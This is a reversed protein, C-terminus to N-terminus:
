GEYVLIFVYIYEYMYYSLFFNYGDCILLTLNFDQFPFYYLSLLYVSLFLPFFLCPSYTTFIFHSVCKRQTLYVCGLGVPIVSM